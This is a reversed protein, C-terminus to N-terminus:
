IHLNEFGCVKLLVSAWIALSLSSLKNCVATTASLVDDLGLAVSLLHRRMCDDTASRLADRKTQERERMTQQQQELRQTRKARVLMAEERDQKSVLPSSKQM